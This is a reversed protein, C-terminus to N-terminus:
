QKNIIENAQCIFIQALNRRFATQSLKKNFYSM